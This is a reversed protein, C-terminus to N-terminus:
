TENIHKRFNQYRENRRRDIGRIVKKSSQPDGQHVVSERETDIQQEQAKRLKNIHDKQQFLSQFTGRITDTIDEGIAIM